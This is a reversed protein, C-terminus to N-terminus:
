PAEMFIDDTLTVRDNGDVLWRHRSTAGGAPWVALVHCEEFGSRVSFFSSKSCALSAMRVSRAQSLSLRGQDSRGVTSNLGSFLQRVEVRQRLARAQAAEM